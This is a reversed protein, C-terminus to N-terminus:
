APAASCRWNGTNGVPQSYPPASPCLFVPLRTNLLSRTTSWTSKALELQDGRADRASRDTEM